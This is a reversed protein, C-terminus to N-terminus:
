KLRLHQGEVTQMEECILKWFLATGTSPAKKAIRGAIVRPPSTETSGMCGRAVIDAYGEAVRIRKGM